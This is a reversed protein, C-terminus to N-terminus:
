WAMREGMHRYLLVRRVMGKLVLVYFFRLSIEEGDQIAVM